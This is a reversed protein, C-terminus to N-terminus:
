RSLAAIPDLRSAKRAPYFGFFIGVAGAFGLAMAITDVRILTRWRALHAMGYTGLLGLGIGMGGGLLTL